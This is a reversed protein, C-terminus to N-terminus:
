DRRIRPDLVGHLVDVIRNGVVVAVTLVLTVGIIVINDRQVVARAVLRGVGNLNFIQEVIVAGGILAGFDIGLFAVVPLSAERLAHRFLVTREPLGKARALTVHDHSLATRVSARTLRTVYALSVSALAAAPMVLAHPGAQTGSIPLIGWRVGLTYQLLFAVVFTPISVLVATAALVASNVARRRRAATAVGLPVGILVELVLALGTLALTTPAADTIMDRVPRRTTLSTGLDGRVLAGMYAAYQQPLSRDLHYRAVLAARTAPPLERTGSIARLPDGPLAFVIVFVVISAVLLTPVVSLLRRLAYAAM